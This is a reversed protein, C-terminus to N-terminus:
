AECTRLHTVYFIFFCSFARRTWSRSGADNAVCLIFVLDAEFECMFLFMKQQQVRVNRSRIISTRFRRKPIKEHEYGGIGNVYWIVCAYNLTPRCNVLWTRQRWTHAWSQSRHAVYIKRIKDTRCCCVTKRHQQRTTLLRSTANGTAIVACALASVVLM